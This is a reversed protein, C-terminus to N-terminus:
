RAKAQKMFLPRVLMWLVPPLLASLLLASGPNEQGSHGVWAFGISLPLSGLLLAVHFSGARMRTLGAMCAIVEPFLPLWRSLVVLWPGTKEFLRASKDYEERGLIRIAAGQGFQRCLWYATMGSLCSGLTGILGGTLPGYVLGLAAMVATGPVPLLIDAVLLGMGAAWAWPGFGKMWNASAEQNFAAEMADGWILFPILFALALGLFIWFLKLPM